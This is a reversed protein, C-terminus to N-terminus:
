ASVGPTGESPGKAASRERREAERRSEMEARAYVQTITACANVWFAYESSVHAETEVSVVGTPRIADAADDMHRTVYKMLETRSKEMMEGHTM